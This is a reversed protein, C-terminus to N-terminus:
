MKGGQFVKHEKIEGTNGDITYDNIIYGPTKVRILWTLDEEFFVITASNDKYSEFIGKYTNKEVYDKEILFNLVDMYGFNGFKKDEDITNVLSGQEDFYHWIGIAVEGFLIGKEKLVGNPYYEKYMESYSNKSIRSETFGNKKDGEIVVMTGDKEKYELYYSISGDDYITKEAKRELWKIDLKEDMYEKNNQPTCSNINCLCLLAIVVHKM